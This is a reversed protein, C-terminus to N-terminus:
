RRRGRLVTLGGLGLLVLTAPEPVFNINSYVSDFGSQDFLTISFAEGSNLWNGTLVNGTLDISNLEVIMTIHKTLNSQQFSSILDMRGGSLIATADDHISFGGMEGNFFNLNSFDDLLLSQIGGVFQELSDTNRVEVYSADEATIELAGGGTVLLSQDGNLRVSGEYTDSIVHTFAGHSVSALIGLFLISMLARKM